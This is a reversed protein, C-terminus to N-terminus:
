ASKKLFPNRISLVENVVLGDQVDESFLTQCDALLASAVIMADYVSLGYRQAIKRGQQNVEVTLPEVACLATITEILEGVDDWPMALKRRAVNTVENLVQMSIIGGDQIVREVVNAKDDDGSLLYLLVNSDIFVKSVSM